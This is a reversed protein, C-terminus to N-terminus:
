SSSESRDVFLALLVVLLLWPLAGLQLAPTLLTLLPTMLWRAVALSVVVLVILAGM